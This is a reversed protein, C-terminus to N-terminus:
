LRRVLIWVNRSATWASIRLTSGLLPRTTISEVKSIKARLTLKLRPRCLERPVSAPRECGECRERDTPCTRVTNDSLTEVFSTSLVITLTTMESIRTV